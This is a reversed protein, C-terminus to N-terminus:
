APQVGSRALTYSIDRAELTDLLQRAHGEDRVDLTVHVAVERVGIGREEHTQSVEVVNAGASGVLTLLAGLSGPTDPIRARLHIRHGSDIEHRRLVVDLLGLDVNGGTVLVVTQGGAAPEVKGALVAAVAAAGAGEVVLKAAEMLIGMAQAIEGDTVTIVDDLYRQALALTLAGPRKVAIGDAITQSARITEPTGAELSRALSPCAASEVGVITVDPRQQKVAFAIGTAIGGGGVPVVVRALDPCDELLELGTTAQGAVVDPDDFPHVFSMGRELARGQAAEVAEDLGAGVLHVHAGYRETARVKTASADTPMFIECPVGRRQAALAVAQAHNGASGAVVGAAAAEGLAHLKAMAGRIKFSGTRQLSEAKLWIDGGCRDVLFRAPLLPTRLVLGEGAARAAAVRELTVSESDHV